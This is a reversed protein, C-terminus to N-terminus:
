NCPCADICLPTMTDNVCLGDWNVDCCFADFGCVCECCAIVNCGPNGADHAVCCDLADPACEAINGQCSNGIAECTNGDGANGQNLCGMDQCDFTPANFCESGDPCCCAECDDPPCSTCLLPDAGCVGCFTNALAACDADWVVDCCDPMAACICDCCDEDVCGFTGNDSCCDGEGCDCGPGGCVTCIDIAETACTEDWQVSCCFNDLECICTCCDGDDCGASGNAVCCDGDGCPEVLSQCNDDCSVGDPPDCDEGPDVVGNGCAAPPECDDVPAEVGNWESAFTGAGNLLDIVTLIDSATFGCGVPFTPDGCSHDIDQSFNGFAPDAVGNLQDIVNLVDTANSVGSADTDAPHALYAVLLNGGAFISTWAGPAIAHNLQITYTGSPGEVVSAVGNAGLVPDPSTECLAFCAPALGAVDLVVTIPEDASGFGERLSADDNPGSPDHPRRADHTGSEPIASMLTATCAGGALGGRDAVSLGQARPGEPAGQKRAPGEAASALSRPPVLVRRSGEPAAWAAGLWPQAMVSVGGIVVASWISKVRM